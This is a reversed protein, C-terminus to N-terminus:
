FRRPQGRCARYVMIIVYLLFSVVFLLQALSAATGSIGTFGLLATVIAIVFFAIAWILMADELPPNELVISKALSRYDDAINAILTGTEM